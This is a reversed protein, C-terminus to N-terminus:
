SKQAISKLLDTKTVIGIIRDDKDVIPVGSFSYDLMLKAVEGVTASQKVSQVNQTMIDEVLLKRIRSYKFRDPVVKKFAGMYKAFDEETVIGILKGEEVVPLRSIKRDLLIRRAHVARTSASVTAPNKTMIQEIPQTNDVCAKILDSRTIIGVIKDNDMVPLGSIRHELMLQAVESISSNLSITIPKETMAASVHLRESSVKGAKSSGLKKAIDIETIIGVLKGNEIVILRSINNKKMIELAHSLNADKDITIPPKSIAERIEM